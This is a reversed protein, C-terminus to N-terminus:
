KCIGPVTDGALDNLYNELNTWLGNNSIVPGDSADNPNLGNVLEWGDPIGDADTDYGSRRTVVDISPYGGLSTPTSQNYYASGTLNNLASIERQDITDLYPVTAGASALVDTRATVADTKSGLDPTGTFRSPVSQIESPGSFDAIDTEPETGLPRLTNHYNGNLYIESNDFSTQMTADCDLGFDACPHARLAVSYTDVSDPGRLHYNSDWETFSSRWNAAIRSQGNGQYFVNNIVQITGGQIFPYNNYHNTIFNHHWTVGNAVGDTAHVLGGKGHEAWSLGESVVSWQLTVKSANTMTITNSPAWRASIHDFILNEPDTVGPSPSSVLIASCANTSAQECIAGPALRLHRVIIHDAMFILWLGKITIGEGPATQGAITLYPNDVLITDDNFDITGSTRFICTRPGAADLCVRFSGTGTTNLNTVEFVTGGRGGQAFRGYGEASPFALTQCWAVAAFLLSILIAYAFRM